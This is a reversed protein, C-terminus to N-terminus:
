RRANLTQARRRAACRTASRRDDRADRSRGTPRRRRAPSGCGCSGALVVARATVGSSDAWSSCVFASRAHSEDRPSSSGAASARSSWARARRRSANERSSARRFRAICRAGPRVNQHLAGSWGGSPRRECTAPPETLDGRLPSTFAVGAGVDAGHHEGSITPADGREDDGLDRAGSREVDVLDHQAGSPRATMEVRLVALRQTSRVVLPLVGVRVVGVGAPQTAPRPLSAM